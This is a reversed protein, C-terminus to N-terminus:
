RSEDYDEQSELDQFIKSANNYLWNQENPNPYDEKSKLKGIKTGEWSVIQLNKTKIIDFKPVSYLVNANKKNNIKQLM